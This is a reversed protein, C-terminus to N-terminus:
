PSGEGLDFLPPPMLDLRQRRQIWLRALLGRRPAFGLSFLFISTGALIICPGTSAQAVHASILTGMVGSALGFGAALGLMLDLRDTWFRAAAAPIILLAAMLVVGVAPLGIVVAVVILLMLLFDLLSAPWGQVRAFAGDFSVLKFEKYLLLVVVLTLLALGAIWELDSLLM